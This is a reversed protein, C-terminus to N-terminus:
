DNEKVHSVQTTLVGDSIAVYISEGPTIQKTSKIVEGNEKQAMAYGRTLVKLPSM